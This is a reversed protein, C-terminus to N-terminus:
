EIAIQGTQVAVAFNDFYIWQEAILDGEMRFITAGELYLDNGTPPLMSGDTLPAEGSHSGYGVWRTFILDDNVAESVINLTWDPSVSIVWGIWALQSEEGTGFPNTELNVHLAFDPTLLSPIDSLDKTNFADFVAQVAPSSAEISETEEDQAHIAGVVGLLLISTVVLIRFTRM